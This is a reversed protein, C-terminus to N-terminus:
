RAVQGNVAVRQRKKWEERTVSCGYFQEPFEVLAYRPIHCKKCFDTHLDWLHHPRSGRKKGDPWSM